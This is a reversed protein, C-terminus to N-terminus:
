GPASSGRPTGGIARKSEGWFTQVLHPTSVVLLRGCGMQSHLIQLSCRSTLTSTTGQVPHVCGRGRNTGRGVRLGPVPAAAPWPISQRQGMEVEDLRMLM